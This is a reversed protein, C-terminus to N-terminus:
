NLTFNRLSSVGFIMKSWVIREQLSDTTRHMTLHEAVDRVEGCIGRGMWPDCGQRPSPAQMVWHFFSGHWAPSISQDYHLTRVFCPARSLSIAFWELIRAALVGHVTHFPLIIHCWFMLGGPQFTDSISSPLHLLCNSIAGSPIFWSPWLQFSAWNQIHRTFAFHMAIFFLMTYSGPIEPGHFLTFQVHDLLLNKPMAKRQSQASFQGIGTRHGNSHKGFKSAYQTCCKWLM